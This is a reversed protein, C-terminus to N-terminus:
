QKLKIGIIQHCYNQLKEVENRGGTQKTEM